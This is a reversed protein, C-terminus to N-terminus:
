TLILLAHTEPSLIVSMHEENHSRVVAKIERQSLIFCITLKQLCLVASAPFRVCYGVDDVQWCLAKCKGSPWVPERLSTLAEGANMIRVARASPGNHVNCVGPWTEQYLGATHFACLHSVSMVTAASYDQDQGYTSAMSFDIRDAVSTWVESAMCDAVSMGSTRTQGGEAPSVRGPTRPTPTARSSASSAAAPM